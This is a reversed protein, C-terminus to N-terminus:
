SFFYPLTVPFEEVAIGRLDLKDCSIGDAEPHAIVGAAPPFVLDRRPSPVAAKSM